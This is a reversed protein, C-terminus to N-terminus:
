GSGGGGAVGENVDEGFDSEEHFQFAFVGEFDAGVARASVGHGVEVAVDKSFGAGVVEGPDFPDAGGETVLEMVEGGGGVAGEGKVLVEAGFERFGEELKEVELSDAGLFDFEEVVGEANVREVGELSSALVVANGGEGAKGFLRLLFDQVADRLFVEVGM